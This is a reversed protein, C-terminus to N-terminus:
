RWPAGQRAEHSEPLGRILFGISPGCGSYKYACRYIYWPNDAGGANALDKVLRKLPRPQYTDEEEITVHITAQITRRAGKTFQGGELNYLDDVTKYDPLTWRAKQKEAGLFQILRQPCDDLTKWGQRSYRRKAMVAIGYKRQGIWTILKVSWKRTRKTM